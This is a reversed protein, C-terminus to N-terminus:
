KCVDEEFQALPMPKGFLFGQFTHCGRQELFVKQELTEVGEAIVNLGLAETMAIITQVIAADNSDTAIDAVFGQDIKIQDLPLRKLYQLSSYGTGFDDISFSIGLVKLERMKAITDEVHELVVSETLELKLHSPKATTEMLIRRVQEVFDAQHFQRASVNVALSLDRLGPKAQWIKLQTCAARFVWFGISIISGTEEAMPIFEAPSVLGRTPHLWRLLAEAGIAQGRTNVQKQYYLQFQDKALAQGLDTLLSLRTELKAQMRPDFFRITNRGVSKAQNLATDAHKLLSDASEQHGVFLVIGVSATIAVQTQDLNFPETLTCLIREVFSEAQAAADNPLLSLRELLVIFLDGGSRTVMGSEGITANLRSGVEKLLRDGMAPGRADNFSKFDDLDLFLVAGFHHTHASVAIAKHIGDQLLARNPLGTLADYHALQHIQEQNRKQETIDDYIGLVGLQEGNAGLLPVKSTRLWRQQGDSSTQPEEFNLQPAQSQMVRFDDARYLDAQAHWAMDADQKGVLEEPSALGADHAFAQNCGLYRADHDKWFIRLPATELILRLMTNVSRLQQEARKQETLDIFYSFTRPGRDSQMRKSVVILPFETGDRRLGVSEYNDRPLRGAARLQLREAIKERQTPAVCQAMPRGHLEALSDYGFLKLFADNCDLVIDDCFLGVGMPSIEILSKFQGEIQQLSLELKNQTARAIEQQADYSRCLVIARSLQALMPQLVQALDFHTKPPEIALLVIVGNNELPLRLFSQYTSRTTGLQSLLAAQQTAHEACGYLLDYALNLPKGVLAMLEFDGVVADIHIQPCALSGGRPPMDLCIFGASFSTHYLLRQLTRTLLPKLKIEGGITVSLDYLVPLIQQTPM